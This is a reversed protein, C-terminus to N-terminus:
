WCSQSLRRRPSAAAPPRSPIREPLFSCFSTGGTGDATREAHYAAAKNEITVLSGPVAAGSTDTVTGRLSTLSSQAYLVSASLLFFLFLKAFVKM